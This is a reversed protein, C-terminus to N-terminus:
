ELISKQSTLMNSTLLIAARTTRKKGHQRPIFLKLVICNQYSQRFLFLIFTIETVWIYYIKQQQKTMLELKM